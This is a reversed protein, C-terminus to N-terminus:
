RSSCAGATSVGHEGKLNEVERVPGAALHHNGIVKGWRTVRGVDVTPPGSQSPNPIEDKGGAAGVQPDDFHRCLTLLWEPRPGADDDLFVIVDGRAADVGANLAALVGPERVVSRVNAAGASSIV